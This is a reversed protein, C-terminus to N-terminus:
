RERVFVDVVSKTKTDYVCSYEMPVMVGFGNKFKLSNPNTNGRFQIITDDGPNLRSAYPFRPVYEMSLSSWDYGFKALSEIASSCKGAADPRYQDAWDYPEKAPMFFSGFIVIAIVVLCGIRTNKKDQLQKKIAADKIEDTIPQGCNPCATAEVSINKKCAPCPIMTAM